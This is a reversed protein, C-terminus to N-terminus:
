KQIYNTFKEIFDGKKESPVAIYAKIQTDFLGENVSWSLLLVCGNEAIFKSVEDAKGTAFKILVRFM